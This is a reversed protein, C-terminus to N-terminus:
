EGNKNNNNSFWEIPIARGSKFWDAWIFGHKDCWDAYTTNSGKRLKQYANYFLIYFTKEPHQEKVWLMKKRDDLSFIGKCEIYVDDAIKFDPKYTRKVEPQIFVVKDVEYNLEGKENNKTLYEGVISEFKSKFEYQQAKTQNKNNKRM